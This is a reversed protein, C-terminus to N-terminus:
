YGFSGDANCLRPMADVGCEKWDSILECSWNDPNTGAGSGSYTNRYPFRCHNRTFQIGNASDDWWFKTGELTDPANNNEVWDVLNDIINNNADKAAGNQGFMWAGAGAIGGVGCHAMGSIRFYRFWPDMETHDLGLRDAVKLYFRQSNAGSTLPDAMGHYMLLKGGVYRFGSLDGSFSSPNGHRTDLNIAARYDSQGVTTVDFSSDNHVGGRFFDRAIGQVSGSLQGLRYADVQSGPLLAPYLLQGNSNFLPTFVNEVTTVQADSLCRSDSNTDCNLASADFNCITPDELIGDAVGDLAEDCEEEIQSQVLIWQDESLFTDDGETGTLQVFRSSWGQLNQFDASAAGSIIGDFDKPYYMASHMGQQGGTSCGIYYSYAANQGYFESVVEKGIEVSAHRARDAWDVIRENQNLMWSGDFSSGNHGANDGIAAFGLGSVYEMDVYHVCGNLGGNDTSMTRGNYDNQPLWVEMYTDSNGSTQVNMSVKCIDVEPTFSTGCQANAQGDPTDVATNASHPSCTLSNIAWNSPSFNNCLATCDGM